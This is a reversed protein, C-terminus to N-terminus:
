SQFTLNLNPIRTGMASLGGYFRCAIYLPSDSHYIFSLAKCQHKTACQQQPETNGQPTFTYSYIHQHYVSDVLYLYKCGSKQNKRCSAKSHGQTQRDCTLTREFHSFMDHLVFATRYGLVRLNETALSRPSLESPEVGVPRWICTAYSFNAVKLLIVRQTLQM